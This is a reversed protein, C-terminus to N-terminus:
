GPRPTPYTSFRAKSAKGNTSAAKGTMKVLPLVVSNEKEMPEQVSVAWASPSARKTLRASLDQSETCAAITIAAEVGKGSNSCAMRATPM